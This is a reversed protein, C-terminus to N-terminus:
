AFIQFINAFKKSKVSLLEHLGQIVKPSRQGLCCKSQEVKTNLDRIKNIRVNLNM